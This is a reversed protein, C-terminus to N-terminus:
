QPPIGLGRKRKPALWLSTDEPPGGPPNGQPAPLSYTNPRPLLLLSGAQSLEKKIGAKPQNHRRCAICTRELSVQACAFVLKQQYTTDRVRIKSGESREPKTITTDRTSEQTERGQSALGWIWPPPGPQLGRSSTVFM